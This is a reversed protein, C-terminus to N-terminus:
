WPADDRGQIHVEIAARHVAKDHWEKLNPYPRIVSLNLAVTIANVAEFIAMDGFTFHVGAGLGKDEDNSAVALKDLAAFWVPLVDAKFKRKADNSGEKRMALSERRLDCAASCLSRATSRENENEGLYKNTGKGAKDAMQAIHELIAPQEVLKLGDFDVMPLQGFLLDGAADMQKFTEESVGVDEYAIGTDKFLMRIAEADGRRGDFYYLKPAM